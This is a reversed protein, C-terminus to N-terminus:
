KNELLKRLNQLELSYISESMSVSNKFYFVGGYSYTVKLFTAQIDKSKVITRIITRNPETITEDKIGDPIFQKDFDIRYVSIDSPNKKPQVQSTGGSALAKKQNEIDKMKKADLAEEEKRKQEIALRANEDDLKRKVTALSDKMANIRTERALLDVRNKEAVMTLSDQRSKDRMRALSDATFKAQSQKAIEAIRVQEKATAISDAIAKTRAANALEVKRANEKAAEKALLEDKAKVIALSDSMAKERAVRAFEAQRSQEKAAAIFDQKIKEQVKELSDAIAKQRAALAFQEQQLQANVRAISDQTVKEKLAQALQQKKVNDISDQRSKALTAQEIRIREKVALLSDQRSKEVVKTLSDKAAQERILRATELAKAKQEAAAISDRVANQKAVTAAAIQQQRITEKAISDQRMKEQEAQNKQLALQKARVDAISDQRAKDVLIKKAAEQKSAEAAMKVKVSELETKRTKSYDADYDFDEYDDSFLLKAVPKEAENPVTGEPAKFLDMKFKFSFIQKKYNDPVKTDIMVSKTFSGNKSFVITYDHGLELNIIFKGGASSLVNDVNENGKFIKIDAGELGKSEQQVSGVVELYGDEQAFASYSGLLLCIVAMLKFLRM